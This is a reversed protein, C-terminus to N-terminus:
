TSACWTRWADRYAQELKAVFSKRDLLPSAQMKARLTTRYHNLRPLDNALEIAKASYEEASHAILEACGIVSLISASVRSVHTKGALTIWPVGLWLTECTTTTGHYPFSDLAIDASAVIAHRQNYSTWGAMQVREGDVDHKAFIDIVRQRVDTSDLARAKLLIRSKPVAQVIKAWVNLMEDTIKAFNNFSGFTIHGRKHAPSADLPPPVDDDPRYCLFCDPLRVLAETHHSETMGVPDAVADTIRYQVAPIGTTAPYGLYTFQVPAAGRAMLPARNNGTHGALDILVDIRDDVILKTAADESLTAIDRWHDVLERLRQTMDDITTSNSYAFVEVQSRDHGALVNELFSAVPHRNYDPSLYGIRLRRDRSRDNRHVIPPENPKGHRAAWRKHEDLSLEPTTHPSYHLSLLLNSAIGADNPALEIARRQLLMAEDIRGSEGLLNALNQHAAAHSPNIAIARKLSEAARDFQGAAHLVKGLNYHVSADNPALSASRSLAELAEDRRNISVYAIGLMNWAEVFNPQLRVAARLPEIAARVEGARELSLGLGFHAKAYKPELTIAKRYAAAALDFRGALRLAQGLNHQLLAAHPALNAARALLDMSQDLQGARMLLMGKLHLANVNDPQFSLVQECVAAARDFRGAAHHAAADRMLDDPSAFSM